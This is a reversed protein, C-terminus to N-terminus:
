EAGSQLEPSVREVRTTGVGAKPGRKVVPRKGLRALYRRIGLPSVHLRSAVEMYSTALVEAALVDADPWAVRTPRNRRYCQWCRTSKSHPLRLGCDVCPSASYRGRLKGGKFTETQAHCNPCLIRLNLLRNDFPDGNIHDLQLTLPKNRWIPPAGCESCENRLLGASVLRKRLTASPYATDKHLIQDLPRINRPRTTGHAKGRFHSTDLGLTSIRRAISRWNAPGRSLGLARLVGSMGVNSMVALALQADTWRQV